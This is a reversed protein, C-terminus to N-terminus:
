FEPISNAAAETMPDREAATEDDISDFLGSIDHIDQTEICIKL